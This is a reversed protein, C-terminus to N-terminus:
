EALLDDVEDQTLYQAEYDIGLAEIHAVFAKLHNISGSLLNGYVAQLDIKDTEEIAHNLDEIDVEEILAGVQFAELESVTGSTILQNYLEQLSQDTFLGADKSASDEISYKVLLAEIADMHRQESEAINAFITSGWMEHMVLYVDRAVKEEERMFKLTATEADTLTRIASMKQNGQPSGQGAFASAGICCIMSMVLMLALLKGTRM